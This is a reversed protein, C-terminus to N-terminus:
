IDNSIVESTDFNISWNQGEWKYKQSNRTWWDQFQCLTRRYDSILKDYMEQNNADIIKVLNELALKKEFINQIEKKDDDSLTWIVKSM